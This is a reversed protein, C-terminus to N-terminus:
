RDQIPGPPLDRADAGSLDAIFQAAPLIVPLRLIWGIWAWGLHLHELARAFAAVGQETCGPTQYTLRRLKHTPHNEAVALALGTPARGTIWRALQSCPTCTEAFYLTAPTAVHPRWRPLWNRVHSRYATWAGGFRTHLEQDEHWGMMGAGTLLAIVAAAAVWPSATWWGFLLLGLLTSAQMPNAIYAYPGSTVLRAPPDFPLPTGGGRLCFEQVASLGPATLLFTIQFFVATATPPLSLAHKWSSGSQELILSPLIFFLVGVFGVFLLVSRTRLHTRQAISRGLILGPLLAFGIAAAEGLLWHDGLQLVPSCAPMVLLDFGLALLACQWLPTKPLGLVPVAGWLLAWGILLDAPMGLLLGGQATHTWWGARAAALHVALLTATNWLTAILAAGALRASPPQWLILPVLIGAPWLLGLFRLLVAHTEPTM